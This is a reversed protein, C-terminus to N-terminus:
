LPEDVMDGGVFARVCLSEGRAVRLGGELERVHCDLGCGERGM